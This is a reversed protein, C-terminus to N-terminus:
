KKKAKAVKGKGSELEKVEEAGSLWKNITNMTIVLNPVVRRLHFSGLSKPPNNKLIQGIDVTLQGIKKPIEASSDFM